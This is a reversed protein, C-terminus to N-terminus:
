VFSVRTKRMFFHVVRTRFVCGNLCGNKFRQKGGDITQAVAFSTAVDLLVGQYHQQRLVAPLSLPGRTSSSYEVYQGQKSLRFVKM